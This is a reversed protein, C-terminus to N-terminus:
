RRRPRPSRRRRSRRADGAPRRRRIAAERRRPRGRAGFGARRAPSRFRHLAASTSEARGKWRSGNVEGAGTSRKLKPGMVKLKGERRLSGTCRPRLRRPCASAFEAGLFRLGLRCVSPQSGHACASRRSKERGKVDRAPEVPNTRGRLPFALQISRWGPSVGPHLRHHARPGVARTRNPWATDRM